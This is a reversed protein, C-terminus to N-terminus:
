HSNEENNNNNANGYNDVEPTNQNYTANEGSQYVNNSGPENASQHVSTTYTDETVEYDWQSEYWLFGGVIALNIFLSVILAIWLRRNEKARDQLLKMTVRNLAISQDLAGTEQKMDNLDRDVM